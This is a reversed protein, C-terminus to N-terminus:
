RSGLLSFRLWCVLEKPLNGLTGFVFEDAAKKVAESLVPYPFVLNSLQYLTMGRNVAMTLLSIMEGAAPAVITASLLRGSVVGAHLMVFGEELGCTYGRDTDKLAVLHTRISKPHRSEKLRELTPGVQAVEPQTFTASPYHYSGAFDPLWPFALKKNLRRGQHNASHTFASRHNIDGIAFVNAAATRGLQDTLVGRRDFTVGARELDLDLNPQRGVAALVKDVNSVRGGSSLKLTGQSYSEVTDNLHVAVQSNELRTKLLEGVEPESVKLLREGRDILTIQSGLRRFAFAMELGIVGGGVIVLHGPPETLDFISENTLLTSHPLGPIDLYRPHSGTALVVNKASIEFPEGQPPSISLSHPSLFRAEGNLFDVGPLERVWVTEEERLHDRRERVLALAEVATLDGSEVKLSAHILTKSPICGVNTCDGGVQDREVLAVKKGLKSLGVAVTLGGSGSGVVATHYQYSM